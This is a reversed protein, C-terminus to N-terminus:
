RRGEPQPPVPPLPGPDYLLLQRRGPIRDVDVIVKARGGLATTLADWALRFETLSRRVALLEARRQQYESLAADAARGNLISALLGTALRAEDSSELRSRAAHWGAVAGADASAMAVRKEARAEATRVALLAAAEASRRTRTAQAAAENIQRDRDEL